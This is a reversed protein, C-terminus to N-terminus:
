ERFFNDIHEQNQVIRKLAIALGKACDPSEAIAKIEEPTVGNQTLVRVLTPGNADALPTTIPAVVSLPNILFGSPISRIEQLDDALEFEDNRSM